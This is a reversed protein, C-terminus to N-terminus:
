VKIMPMNVKTSDSPTTGKGNDGGTGTGTGPATGTGTGTGSGKNKCKKGKTCIIHIGEQGSQGPCYGDLGGEPCILNTGGESGSGGYVNLM